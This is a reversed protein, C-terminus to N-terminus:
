IERLDRRRATWHSGDVIDRVNHGEDVKVDGVMIRVPEMITVLYEKKSLPDRYTVTDGRRM